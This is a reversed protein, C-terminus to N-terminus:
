TDNLTMLRYRHIYAINAREYVGNLAVTDTYIYIDVHIYTHKETLNGYSMEGGVTMTSEQTDGLRSGLSTNALWAEVLDVLSKDTTM